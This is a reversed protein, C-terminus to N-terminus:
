FGPMCVLGSSLVINSMVSVPHMTMNEQRSWSTCFIESAPGEFSEYFDLARNAHFSSLRFSYKDWIRPWCAANDKNICSRWIYTRGERNRVVALWDLRDISSIWWFSTPFLVISCLCDVTVLDSRAACESILM